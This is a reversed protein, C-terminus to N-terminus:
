VLFFAGGTKDSLKKKWQEVKLQYHSTLMGAVLPLDNAQHQDHVSSVPKVM